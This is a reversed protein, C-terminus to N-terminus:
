RAIVSREVRMDAMRTVRFEIEYEGGFVGNVCIEDPPCGIAVSRYIKSSGPTPLVGVLEATTMSHRATGLWDDACQPSPAHLTVMMCFPPLPTDVDDEYFTVEFEVPGPAGAEECVWGDGIRGDISSEIAMPYICSQHEHISRHEGTDVDDFVYTGGWKGQSEWVVWIEDSGLLDVGSEDLATFGLAEVKFMPVIDHTGGVTSQGPKPRRMPSREVPAPTGGVSTKGPKAPDGGPWQGSAPSVGMVTMLLGLAGALALKRGLHKEM